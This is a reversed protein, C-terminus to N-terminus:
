NQMCRSASTSKTAGPFKILVSVDLGADCSDTFALVTLSPFITAFYALHLGLKGQIRSSIVIELVEESWQMSLALSPIKIMRAKRDMFIIQRLLPQAIERFLRSVLCLTRLTCQRDGYSAFRFTSPVTSEIIQRVLETPLSSFSM